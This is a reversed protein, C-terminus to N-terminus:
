RSAANADEFEFDQLGARRDGYKVVYDSGLSRALTEADASSTFVGALHWPHVRLVGWGSKLAPAQMTTEANGQDSM